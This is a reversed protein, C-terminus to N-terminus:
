RWGRWMEMALLMEVMVSVVGSLVRISAKGEGVAEGEMQEVFTDGVVFQRQTSSSGDADLIELVLVVIPRDNAGIVLVVIQASYM